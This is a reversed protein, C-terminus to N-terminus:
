KLPSSHKLLDKDWDMMEFAIEPFEGLFAAETVMSVQLRQRWPM